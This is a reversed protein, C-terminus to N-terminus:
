DTRSVQVSDSLYTEGWGHVNIAASAIADKSPRGRDNAFEKVQEGTVIGTRPYVKSGAVEMLSVRYTGPMFAVSERYESRDLTHGMAALADELRKMPFRGRGEPVDVGLYAAVAKVDALSRVVFTYTDTATPTDKNARKWAALFKTARDGQLEYRVM